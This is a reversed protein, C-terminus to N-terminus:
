GYIYEPKKMDFKMWIKRISLGFHNEKSKTKDKGGGMYKLYKINATNLVLHQTCNHCFGNKLDKAKECVEPATFSCRQVLLFHRKNKFSSNRMSRNWCYKCITAGEEYKSWKKSCLKMKWQNWRDWQVRNMNRGIIYEPCFEYPPLIMIEQGIRQWTVNDYDFNAKYYNTGGSYDMDFKSYMGDPVTMDSWKNPSCTAQEYEYGPGPFYCSDDLWKNIVANNEGIISNYICIFIIVNIFSSGMNVASFDSGM